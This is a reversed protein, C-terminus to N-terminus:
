TNRGMMSPAGDICCEVVRGWGFQNEACFTDVVGFIDHWATTSYLTLSRLLEEVIRCGCAFKGYLLLQAESTIDASEDIVLATYPSSRFDEYIQERLDKAISKIRGTITNNSLAVGTVADRVTKQFVEGEFIELFSELVPKMVVAGDVCPRKERAVIYAAKCSFLELRQKKALSQRLFAKCKTLQEFRLKFVRKRGEDTLSSVDKHTNMHRLLKNPKLSEEAVEKSCLVYIAKGFIDAVGFRGLFSGDVSRKQKKYSQKKPRCSPGAQISREM